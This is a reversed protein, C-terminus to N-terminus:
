QLRVNESECAKLYAEHFSKCDLMVRSFEAFCQMVKSDKSFDLNTNHPIKRYVWKTFNNAVRQLDHLIYFKLREAEKTENLASQYIQNSAIVSLDVLTRMTEVQTYYECDDLNEQVYVDYLANKLNLLPTYSLEDMETCFDAYYDIRDGVIKNLTDFYTNARKKLAGFIKQSEKDKDKLYPELEKIANCATDNLYLMTYMSYLLLNTEKTTLKKM